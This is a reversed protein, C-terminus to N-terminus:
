TRKKGGDEEGMREEQTRGEREMREGEAGTGLFLPFLLFRYLSLFSFLLFVYLVFGHLSITTAQEDIVLDYNGGYDQAKIYELNKFFLSVLYRRECRGRRREGRVAGRAAATWVSGSRLEQGPGKMPRLQSKGTRQLFPM